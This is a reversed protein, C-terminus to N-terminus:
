TTYGTGGQQVVKTLYVWIHRRPSSNMKDFQAQAESENDFNRSYLKGSRSIWEVIHTTTNM